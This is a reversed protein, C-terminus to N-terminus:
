RVAKGKSLASRGAVQDITMSLVLREFNKDRQMSSLLEDYNKVNPFNFVVKDLNQTYFNGGSQGVPIALGDIKLNDRIFDEPSNAMSWINSTANANLVSDNRALPTLIAGDSPRIIAELKNGEQTWALEDNPLSYRGKAYNNKKMWSLMKSNQSASGTYNKAKGLGM